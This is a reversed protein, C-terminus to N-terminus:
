QSLFPLSLYIFFFQLTADTHKLLHFHLLFKLSATGGFTKVKRRKKRGGRTEEATMEVPWVNGTADTRTLLVMQEETTSSEGVQAEQLKKNKRMEELQAKLKTALDQPIKPLHGDILLLVLWAALFTLLNSVVANISCKRSNFTAPFSRHM